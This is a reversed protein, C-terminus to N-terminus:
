IIIPLNEAQKHCAFLPQQLNKAEAVAGLFSFGGTSVPPYCAYQM